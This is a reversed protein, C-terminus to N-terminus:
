HWWAVPFSCRKGRRPELCDDAPARFRCARVPLSSSSDLQHCLERLHSSLVFTSSGGESGTFGCRLKWCKLYFVLRGASCSRSAPLPFIRRMLWIFGSQFFLSGPVFWLPPTLVVLVDLPRLLALELRKSGTSPCRRLERRRM